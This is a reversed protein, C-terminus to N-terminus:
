CSRTSTPDSDASPQSPLEMRIKLTWRRPAAPVNRRRPRRLPYAYRHQHSCRRARSSSGLALPRSVEFKASDSADRRLPLYVKDIRRDSTTGAREAGFSAFRTRDVEESARPCTRSRRVFGCRDLRHRRADLPQGDPHLIASDRVTSALSASRNWRMLVM